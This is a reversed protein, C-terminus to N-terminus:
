CDLVTAATRGWCWRDMLRCGWSALLGPGAWRGRCAGAWNRNFFADDYKLFDEMMDKRIAMWGIM